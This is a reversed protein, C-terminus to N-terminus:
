QDDETKKSPNQEKLQSKLVANEESLRRSREEAETKGKDATNTITAAAQRRFSIGSKSLNVDKISSDTPNFGLQQLQGIRSDFASSDIANGVAGSIINQKMQTRFDRAQRQSSGFVSGFASGMRSFINSPGGQQWGTINSQYQTRTGLDPLQNEGLNM